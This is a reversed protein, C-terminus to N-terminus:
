RLARNAFDIVAPGWRAVQEKHGIFTGHIQKVEPTVDTNPCPPFRENGDDDYGSCAANPFIAAQSRFQENVAIGFLVKTPELSKGNRPQLLFIPRKQRHMAFQLDLSWYPEDDNTWSLEAGSIDIAVLQGYDHANTLVTLAGGYSHGLIVIRNPDALKGPKPPLTDDITIGALSKIFDIQERVDFRQENLYGLEVASRRYAFECPVDPRCFDSGCFLHPTLTFAADLPSRSCFNVYDDVHIGTSRLDTSQDFNGDQNVDLYHGRRLPTFVVWKENTFFKVIECPESRDQEHGHNFILVPRNKLTEGSSGKFHLTGRLKVEHSMDSPDTRSDQADTFLRGSIPLYTVRRSRIGNGCTSDQANASYGAGLYLVVGFV